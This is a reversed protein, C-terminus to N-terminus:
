YNGNTNSQKRLPRRLGWTKSCEDRNTGVMYRYSLFFSIESISNSRKHITWIVFRELGNAFLLIFDYRIELAFGHLHSPQKSYFSRSVDTYTPFDLSNRM